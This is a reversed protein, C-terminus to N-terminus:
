KTVRLLTVQTQMVFGRFTHLQTLSLSNLGKFLHSLFCGRSCATSSCLLSFTPRTSPLILSVFSTGSVQLPCSSTTHSVTETILPYQSIQSIQYECVAPQMQKPVCTRTTSLPMHESSCMSLGGCCNLFEACLDRLIYWQPLPASAAPVFCSHLKFRAAM